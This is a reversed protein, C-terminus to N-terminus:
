HVAARTTHTASQPYVLNVPPADLLEWNTLAPVLIGRAIEHGERKTWELLRAVGGGAIAINRVVDRDANDTVLWGRVVVAAEEDLSPAFAHNADSPASGPM